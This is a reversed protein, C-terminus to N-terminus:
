SPKGVLNANKTARAHVLILDQGRIRFEGGIASQEQRGPLGSVFENIKSLPFVVEPGAEGVLGLTPGTILGGDAFATAKFSNKLATGVAIAAVGAGLALLPNSFLSGVAVDIAQFVGAAVILQEGLKVIASGLFNMFGDFANKMGKGTLADGFAQGIAVAAQNGVKTSLNDVDKILQSQLKEIQAHAEQVNQQFTSFTLEVKIDSKIPPLKGGFDQLFGGSAEKFKAIASSDIDTTGQVHSALNPNKIKALEQAYLDALEKAYKRSDNTGIKNGEQIAAAIKAQYLKTTDGNSDLSTTLQKFLPQTSPKELEARVERIKNLLEEVGKTDTPATTLPKQKLQIGINTNLEGNLQAINSRLTFVADKQKNYAETATNLKSQLAGEVPDAGAGAGTYTRTPLGSYRDLSTQAQDRASKLKNEADVQKFLESTQKSIEETQGKIVAETILAQNYAQVSKALKGNLADELTLDGLCAKNVERLQDLANKREKYSLNTNAVAAALANVKDINGAESGSSSLTVDTASKLNLLTEALHKAEETAKKEQDTTKNLVEYLGVIGAGAILGAPGLLAFNTSLARISFNQGTVLRGLDLFAVRAQAMSVGLGAMANGAQNAPQRVQNLSDQLGVQKLSKAETSLDRIARNFLGLEQTNGAAAAARRLDQLALNVAEINVTGETALEVLNDNLGGLARVADVVNASVNISLGADM